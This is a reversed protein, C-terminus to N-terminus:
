QQSERKKMQYKANKMQTLEKRKAQEQSSNKDPLATSVKGQKM